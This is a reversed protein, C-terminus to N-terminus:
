DRSMDLPVIFELFTVFATTRYPHLIKEHNPYNKMYELNEIYNVAILAAPLIPCVATMAAASAMLAVHCKAIDRRHLGKHHMSIYTSRAAIAALGIKGAVSAGTAITATTIIPM